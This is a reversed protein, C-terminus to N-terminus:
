VELQDESSLGVDEVVESGKWVVVGLGMGVVVRGLSSAVVVGVDLLFVFASVSVAVGLWMGAIAVVVAFEMWVVGEVVAKVATELRVETDVWSESYKAGTVVGDGTGVELVVRGKGVAIDLVGVAAGSWGVGTHLAGTVAGVGGHGCVAQPGAGFIGEGLEACIGVGTGAVAMEKEAQQVGALM